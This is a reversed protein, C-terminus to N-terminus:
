SLRGTASSTGEPPVGLIRMTDWAIRAFAPAATSSAWYDGSPDELAVVIVARPSPLPLFGAFWAIHHEGDLRGGVAHQATGTKGAVRYGPVAAAKGTGETVVAELMRLIRADLAPGVVRAAPRRPPDTRVIRPRLLWGGNALVAYATALQLPSVTLEEGLGFGAPTLRSWQAPGSLLGATEGPFALGPRSGLGFARFTDHLRRPGLRDAVLVMGANSSHAIIGDLTYEDPPAHDHIWRGQYELGRRRCDFREGPRVAGDALAAAAVFPKVTSGPEWADQVPHLRWHDHPVAAPHAPDFSPLSVLALIDGTFPDMVVASASRAGVSRRVAELDAECAAQLRALVTLELDTGPCGERVPRLQLRRRTADYVALMTGPTGNLSLDFRQELGWRGVTRMANRGVFGVLPAAVTGLPYIRATDPVLAVASPALDRAREATALPVQQALWSWRRRLRRRVTDEPLDLIRAAARTFLEPYRLAASDVQITVRDVSSALLYGDATRISGRRSPAEVERQHQRRAAAAWRPHQVVMVQVLRAGAVLLMAALLSATLLVRRRSM